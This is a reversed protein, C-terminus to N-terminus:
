GHAFMECGVRQIDEMLLVLKALFKGLSHENECPPDRTLRVLAM